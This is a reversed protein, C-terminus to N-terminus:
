VRLLDVLKTMLDRSMELMGLNAEYTRTAERMDASEFTGSVNTTMVLGNEDAAPHGPLYKMGFDSRDLSVKDKRVVKVGLEDDMVEKFEIVRRRYPLDGESTALSDANAVNQAIIRMRDGQAQMGAASISISDILNSM